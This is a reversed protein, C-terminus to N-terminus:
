ANVLVQKLQELQGRVSGDYVTSGIRLIAGGLLSKDERYTARVKSGAMKAVQSELMQREFADLPNASTIEAETVNHQQDAVSHYEAFIEDMEELRHNQTIVAIFNRVEPFIGIRSGIADLVKLKQDGSISPNMLVERLQRSDAFTGAFDRLQQEVQEGDLQRSAVVSAFAHAYRLSLVSM